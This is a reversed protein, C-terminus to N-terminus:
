GKMSDDVFEDLFNDDKPFLIKKKGKMVTEGDHSDENGEAGRIIRQM